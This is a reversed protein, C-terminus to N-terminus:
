DVFTAHILLAGMIRSTFSSHNDHHPRVPNHSICTAAPADDHNSDKEVKQEKGRLAAKKAEGDM